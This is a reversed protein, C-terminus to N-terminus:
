THGDLPLTLALATEKRGAFAPDLVPIPEFGAARLALYTEAAEKAVPLETVALTLSVGVADPVADEPGHVSWGAREFVEKFWLAHGIAVTDGAPTRITIERLSVTGLNHALANGREPSFFEDPKTAVAIWQLKKNEVVREEVPKAAPAATLATELAAVRAELAEIRAREGSTEPAPAPATKEKTRNEADQATPIVVVERCKPCQVRRSRQSPQVMIEAGCSPCVVERNDPPIYTKVM